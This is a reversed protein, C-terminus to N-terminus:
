LVTGQTGFFTYYSVNLVKEHITVKAGVPYGAFGGNSESALLQPGSVSTLPWYAVALFLSVLAIVLGVIGLRKM